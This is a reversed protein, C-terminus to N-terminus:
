QILDLVPGAGGRSKLLSQFQSIQIARQNRFDYGSKFVVSEVSANPNNSSVTTVFLSGDKSWYCGSFYLSKESDSVVGVDILPANSGRSSRVYLHITTDTLNGQRCLLAIDQGGPRLYESCNQQSAPLLFNWAVGGFFIFILVVSSLLVKRSM